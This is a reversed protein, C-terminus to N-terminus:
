NILYNQRRLRMFTLECTAIQSLLKYTGVHLSLRAEKVGNVLTPAIKANVRHSILQISCTTVVFRMTHIPRLENLKSSIKVFKAHIELNFTEM